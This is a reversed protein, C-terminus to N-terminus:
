LTFNTWGSCPSSACRCVRAADVILPIGVLFACGCATVQESAAVHTREKSGATIEDTLRRSRVAVAPNIDPWNTQSKHQLIFPPVDPPKGIRIEVLAGAREYTMDPSTPDAVQHRFILLYLREGHQYCFTRENRRTSGSWSGPKPMLTLNTYTDLTFSIYFSGQLLGRLGMLRRPEWM